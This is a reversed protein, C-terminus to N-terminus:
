LPEPKAEPASAKPAVDKGERDCVLQHHEDWMRFDPSLTVSGDRPNFLMAQALSYHPPLVEWHGPTPHKGLMEECTYRHKDGPRPDGPTSRFSWIAMTLAVAAAIVLLTRFIRTM